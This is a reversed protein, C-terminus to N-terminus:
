NYGFFGALPFICGKEGFWKFRTGAPQRRMSDM